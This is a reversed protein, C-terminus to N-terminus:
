TIFLKLGPALPKMDSKASVGTTTSSGLSILLGQIADFAANAILLNLNSMAAMSNSVEATPTDRKAGDPLKGGFIADRCQTIMANVSNLSWESATTLHRYNSSILSSDDNLKAYHAKIRAD